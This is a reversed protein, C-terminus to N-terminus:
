IFSLNKINKKLVKHIKKDNYYNINKENINMKKYKKLLEVITKKLNNKFEFNLTRKLKLFSVKYNRKDQDIKVKEYNIKTVKKITHIIDMIRYNEKDEGVNFIQRNVLNKDTKLIKILLRSIDRTSIFPRWSESGYLKIKIKKIAMLVFRNVVLDFRKRPSDGYVTSLRLIVPCFEDTKFSLISKECEIKCKAYLSVPNLKSTESCKLKSDGYVSCSSAFIFKNIKNKICESVVFVTNEYNNKISFNENINVAPDGVIEGLHIVDTCNKISQKLKKKNSCDGYFIKLRKDKLTKKTFHCGYFNKDLINVKYNKKLLDITLVSGIYGLGGIILIRKDKNNNKQLLESTHVFDVLKNNKVIPILIKNSELLIKKKHNKKTYPIKLYNKQYIYKAKKNLNIENKLLRRRIDSDTIVGVLNNKKSIVFVGNKGNQDIKLLVDKIKTDEYVIMKKLKEIM